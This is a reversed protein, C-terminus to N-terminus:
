NLQEEFAGIVVEAELMKSPSKEMLYLVKKMAGPNLGMNIGIECIREKEKSHLIGDCHMLLALRYFQLIRQFEDKLIQREGKLTFLNLFTAKDVGLEQAVIWLFDYERDHLEGDVVAFAIMEQLLNIKEEQTNM